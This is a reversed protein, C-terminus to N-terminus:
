VSIQMIKDYAQIVKSTAQTAISISLEAKAMATMVDHIDVSSDGNMASKLLQEPANLEQSINSALGSMTDKFSTTPVESDNARINPILDFNSMSPMNSVKGALSIQNYFGNAM